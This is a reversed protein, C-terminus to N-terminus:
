VCLLALLYTVYVERSVCASVKLVLFMSESRSTQDFSISGVFAVRSALGKCFDRPDFPAGIEPAM